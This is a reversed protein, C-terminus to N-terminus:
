FMPPEQELSEAIDKLLIVAAAVVSLTWEAFRANATGGDAGGHAIGKGASRFHYPALIGKVLTPPIREDDVDKINRLIKDLDGGLDPFLAKVAAELSAVAEKVSNEFDIKELDSFYLVAKSYHSRADKLRPDQLVTGALVTMKQSHTRGPSVMLGSAMRYASNEEALVQNIDKEFEERVSDLPVIEDEVGNIGYEIRPQLFTSYIRECLVFVLDWRLKHISEKAIDWADDVTVFEQVHNLRLMESAIPQWGSIWNNDISRSIAYWIGIRTNSPCDDRIVPGSRFGFRDAFFAEGGVM